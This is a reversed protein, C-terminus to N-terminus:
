KTFNTIVNRENYVVQKLNPLDLFAVESDATVELLSHLLKGYISLTLFTGNAMMMLQAHVHGTCFELLQLMRCDQKSCRGNRDDVSEVRAKCRLCAKFCELEPVAMVKVDKITKQDNSIKVFELDDILVIKSEGGMSLYKVGGWERVVFSELRYSAGERLCGVQDEWLTLKATSTHDAVSVEQKEKGTRVTEPDSSKHVKVNVTVKAFVYKSQLGDLAVEEPTDDEFDVDPVDIKKESENIKSDFKLLIEMKDGRRSPKIECNKIEIARKKTLMDSMKKQQKSDFGVFRLKSNGDSLKGDFYNQKRGKKVPSVSTLVGHLSASGIGKDLEDFNEVEEFTRKAM